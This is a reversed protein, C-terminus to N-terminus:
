AFTRKLEKFTAKLRGIFTKVPGPRKIAGMAYLDGQLRLLNKYNSKAKAQSIPQSLEQKLAKIQGVKKTLDREVKRKLQRNM